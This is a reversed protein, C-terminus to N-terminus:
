YSYEFLNSDETENYYRCKYKRHHTREGKVVKHLLRFDLLGDLYNRSFDCLGEIYFSFGDPTTIVYKKACTSDKGRYKGFRAKSMKELTEKSAIKGMNSESIKRKWDESLHKGRNPHNETNLLADSMKKRIELTHKKGYYPNKKGMMSESRRKREEESIIHGVIGEGGITSNYGNNFSDYYKIYYVEKENLENLDKCECLVEWILGEQGHKRLVNMFYYNRTLDKSHTIHRKIRHELGKTTQGIYCKGNSKNTAKYIIGYSM